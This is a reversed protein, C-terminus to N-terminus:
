DSLKISFKFFRNTEQEKEPNALRECLDFGVRAMFFAYLGHHLKVALSSNIYSHLMRCCVCLRLYRTGASSILYEYVVSADTFLKFTQRFIKWHRTAMSVFEALKRPLFMDM